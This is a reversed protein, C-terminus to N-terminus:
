FSRCRRSKRYCNMQPDGDVYFGANADTCSSSGEGPAYKGIKCKKPSTARPKDVYHGRKARTCASAADTDSYSGPNCDSCKINGSGSAFTGRPCPEQKPAGPKDVYYGPSAAKCVDSGAWPSTALPASRATKAERARPAHM